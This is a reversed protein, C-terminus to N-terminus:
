LSSGYSQDVDRSELCSPLRFEELKRRLREVEERAIDVRFEKIDSM